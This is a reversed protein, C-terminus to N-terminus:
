NDLKKLYKVIDSAQPYIENNRIIFIGNKYLYNILVFDGEDWDSLAYRYRQSIFKYSLEKFDLSIENEMKDIIGLVKKDNEFYRIITDIVGYGLNVYLKKLIDYQKKKYFIDTDMKLELSVSKFKKGRGFKQKIIDIRDLLEISYFLIFIGLLGFFIIRIINIYIDGYFLNKHIPEQTKESTKVPIIKDIGAIKGIPILTPIKDKKHLVLIEITFHKGKEFITKTFEITENNVRPKLNTKIYESNSDILQVKIIEGNELQVGWIDNIDYHSQLIDVNGSNEIYITIIKLNLNREQIDKGQFSIKLESLPEHVDFINAENVVQFSIESKNEEYTTYIGYGGFFVAVIIGLITLFLSIKM